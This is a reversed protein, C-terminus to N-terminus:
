DVCFNKKKARLYQVTSSVPVVPERSIEIFELRILLIEYKEALLHCIIQISPTIRSLRRIGTEPADTGSIVESTGSVPCAPKEWRTVM